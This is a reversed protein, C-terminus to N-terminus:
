ATEPPITSFLLAKPNKPFARLSELRAQRNGVFEASLADPRGSNNAEDWTLQLVVEQLEKLDAETLDGEFTIKTGCSAALMMLGQISDMPATEAQDATTGAYQARVTIAQSPFLRRAVLMLTGCPISDLGLRHNVYATFTKM